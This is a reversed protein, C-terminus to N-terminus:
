PRKNEKKIVVNHLCQYSRLVNFRRGYLTTWVEHAPQRQRWSECISRGRNFSIIGSDPVMKIECSPHVCYCLNNDKYLAKLNRGRCQLICETTAPTNFSYSQDLCEKSVGIGHIVENLSHITTMVVSNLGALMLLTCLLIMNNQRYM